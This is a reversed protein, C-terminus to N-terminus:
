EEAEMYSNLEQKDYNCTNDIAKGKYLADYQETASKEGWALARAKELKEKANIARQVYDPLHEYKKKM